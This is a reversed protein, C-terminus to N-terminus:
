AEQALGARGYLGAANAWRVRERQGPELAALLREAGDGYRHPHDSSFMLLEDSGLQSYVDLLQHDDPPADTPQITFRFHRRVYASPPGIMWPVERQFARWEQDMRWLWAPLWTWGSEAMVFRLEPHREFVGSVVLSLIHSQYNM